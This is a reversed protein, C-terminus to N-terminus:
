EELSGEQIEFSEGNINFTSREGFFALKESPTNIASIDLAYVAVDTLSGFVYDLYSEPTYEVLLGAAELDATIDELGKFVKLSEGHPYVFKNNLTNLADAPYVFAASKNFLFTFGKAAEITEIYDTPSGSFGDTTWDQKSLQTIREAEGLYYVKPAAYITKSDLGSTLEIKILRAGNFTDSFVAGWKYGGNVSFFAVNDPIVSVTFTNNNHNVINVQEKTEKALVIPLSDIKDLPASLKFLGKSIGQLANFRGTINRDLRSYTFSNNITGINAINNFKGLYSGDNTAIEAYNTYIGGSVAGITGDNAAGFYDVGTESGGTVPSSSGIIAFTAALDNAAAPLVCTTGAASAATVVCNEAPLEASATSNIFYGSLGNNHFTSNKVQYIINGNVAWGNTAGLDASKLFVCTDFLLAATTNTSAHRFCPLAASKWGAFGCRIFSARGSASAAFQVVAYSNGDNKVNLFVVDEVIQGNLSSTVSVGGQDKFDLIIKKGTVGSRINVGGGDNQGIPFNYPYNIFIPLQKKLEESPEITDGPSSDLVCQRFSGAGSSNTNTFILTKPVAAPVAGLQPAAAFSAASPAASLKKPAATEEESRTADVTNTAAAPFTKFNEAVPDLLEGPKYALFYINFNESSEAPFTEANFRVNYAGPSLELTQLRGISLAGGKVQAAFVDADGGIQVCVFPLSTKFTIM